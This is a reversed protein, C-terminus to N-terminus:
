AELEQENISDLLDNDSQPAEVEEQELQVRRAAIEQDLREAETQVKGPKLAAEKTKKTKARSAPTASFEKLAQMIGRQLTAAMKSAASETMKTHEHGASDVWTVESFPRAQAEANVVEWLLWNEVLLEAAASDGKTLTNRRHLSSFLKKWLAVRKLDHKYEPPM